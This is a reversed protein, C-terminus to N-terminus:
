KKINKLDDLMDGFRLLQAKVKEIEYRKALEIIKSSYDIFKRYGFEKGISHLSEAFEEIDDVAYISVASEWLELVTGEIKELMNSLDGSIMENFLNETGTEEENFKEKIHFPLFLKLKCILNDFSVPKVVVEDFMENLDP